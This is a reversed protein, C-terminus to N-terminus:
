KLGPIWISLGDQEIIDGCVTIFIMIHTFPRRYSISVLCSSSHLLRLWLLCSFGSNRIMQLMSRIHTRLLIRIRKQGTSEIVCFCNLVCCPKQSWRDRFLNKHHEHNSHCNSENASPYVYSKRNGSRLLMGPSTCKSGSNSSGSGSLKMMFESLSYFWSKSGSGDAEDWIRRHNLNHSHSPALTVFDTM